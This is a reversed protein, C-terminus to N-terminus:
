PVEGDSRLSLLVIRPLRQELGQLRLRVDVRGGATERGPLQVHCLLGFADVSDILFAPGLGVERACAAERKAGCDRTLEKSLFARLVALLEVLLGNPQM